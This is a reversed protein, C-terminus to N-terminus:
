GNMFIEAFWGPRGMEIHHMQFRSIIWTGVRSSVTSSSIAFSIRFAPLHMSWHASAPSYRTKMTLHVHAAVSVIARRAVHRCLADGPTEPHASGRVLLM